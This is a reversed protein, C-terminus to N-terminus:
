KETKDVNTKTNRYCDNAESVWKDMLDRIEQHTTPDEVISRPWEISFGRTDAWELSNVQQTNLEGLKPNIFVWDKGFPGEKRLYSFYIGDFCAIWRNDAKPRIVFDLFMLEEDSDFNRAAQPFSRSMHEIKIDEFDRL